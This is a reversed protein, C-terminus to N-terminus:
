LYLDSHFKYNLDIVFTVNFAILLETSHEIQYCKGTGCLELNILNFTILVVVFEENVRCVIIIGVM